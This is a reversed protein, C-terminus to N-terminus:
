GTARAASSALRQADRAWARTAGIAGLLAILVAMAGLVVSTTALEAAGSTAYYARDGISVFGSIGAPGPGQSRDFSGFGIGGAMLTVTLFTLADTVIVAVLAARWWRSASTARLDVTLGLAGVIMLHIMVLSLLGLPVRLAPAWISVVGILTVTAASVGFAANSAWTTRRTHPVLLEIAAVTLCAAAIIATVSTGNIVLLPVMNLVLAAYLLRSSRVVRSATSRFTAPISGIDGPMQAEPREFM